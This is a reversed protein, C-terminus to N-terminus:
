GRAGGLAVYIDAGFIRVGDRGHPLGNDPRPPMPEQSLPQQAGSVGEIHLHAGTGAGIHAALLRRQEIAEFALAPLHPRLRRQRRM